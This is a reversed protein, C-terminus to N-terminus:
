VEYKRAALKYYGKANACIDDVILVGEASGFDSYKKLVSGGGGFIYLKMLGEKFGNNRIINIISQCYRRASNEVLESIGNGIGYSDATLISEILDIDIDDSYKKAIDHVIDEMM